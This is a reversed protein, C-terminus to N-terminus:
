ADSSPDNPTPMSHIDTPGDAVPAEEDESPIELAYGVGHVTRVLDAGLKRRLAKVHSDVTRTGTADIWDWVDALLQERTLVTGPANALCLLLDFETPTLHAPAGARMVRRGARDIVLDGFQLAVNQEADSPAPAGTRRVRRLLAKLRAALERMSFPKTMYDDAGVGLGVLMDTEDDRATLMLVPVPEDAQIRRCVELGDFGPLMVDLVVADPRVEAVTRVGSPGDYATTVEWGEATLRDAIAHTITPEDEIVVVRVPPASSQAQDPTSM